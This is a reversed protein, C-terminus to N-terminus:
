LAPVTRRTVAAQRAAHRYQDPARPIYMIQREIKVSHGRKNNVKMLHDITRDNRAQVQRMMGRWTGLPNREFQVGAANGRRGTRGTDHPARPIM